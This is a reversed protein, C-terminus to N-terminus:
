DVRHVLPPKALRSSRLTMALEELTDAAGVMSAGVLAVWKGRASAPPNRLWRFEEKRSVGQVGPVAKAAGENLVRQAAQLGAHGPYRTVAERALRRAGALDDTILERIGKVLVEPDGTDLSASSRAGANVGAEVPAPSSAGGDTVASPSSSKQSVTGKGKLRSRTYGM